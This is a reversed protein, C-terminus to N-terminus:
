GMICDGGLMMGSILLVSEKICSFGSFVDRSRFCAYRDNRMSASELASKVNMAEVVAKWHVQM